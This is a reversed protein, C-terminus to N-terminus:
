ACPSIEIELRQRYPTEPSCLISPFQPKNLADPFGQPELCLGSFPTLSQGQHAGPGGPLNTGTYLQLGPQDSWMRLRLGNPAILTAIPGSPPSDLVMNIDQGLSDPDADCIRRLITFDHDTGAVRRVNGLPILDAGAPTYASAALQLRHDRIDGGGMLNYYSHQALNVPTERDPKAHMQYILRGDRLQITVALDIAGPYGGEGDASHYTLQVANSATDAEMGWIQRSLGLPGGHLHHPGDNAPLHVIHKGHAFCASGIRNAIRGAIVGLFAPNDAYALPDAYGLVVPVRAGQLPVRWDRTICGLSLISVSTEGESLTVEQLEKGDIHGVPRPPPM